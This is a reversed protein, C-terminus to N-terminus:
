LRVSDPYTWNSGQDIVWLASEAFGLSELTAVLVAVLPLESLDHGIDIVALGAQAAALADHYRIEGCVLCDASLSICQKILDGCSGTCTVVKELRTDFDGWVRPPRGFVATCRAALQGLSMEGDAPSLACLQGYGKNPNNELPEAVSLFVLGLLGPLVQSAERSVDLPTHVNMLAIGNEIAAFVAAGPSVLVSPAPHFSDPGVFYAPHHSLLLNAGLRKAELVAEVTPDLAVAISGLLAAPDGVCLGNRDWDKGDKVPFSKLLERELAGISIPPQLPQPISLKGVKRRALGTKEEKKKWLAM